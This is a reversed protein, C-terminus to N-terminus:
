PFYVSPNQSVASGKAGRFSRFELLFIRAFRSVASFWHFPPFRGFGYEGHEAGANPSVGYRFSFPDDLATRRYEPEPAPRGRGPAGSGPEPVCRGQRSANSDAGFYWRRAGHRLRGTEACRPGTGSRRRKACDGLRRTLFRRRGTGFRLRGTGPCIVRPAPCIMGAASRSLYSEPYL